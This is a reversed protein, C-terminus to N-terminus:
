VDTINSYGKPYALLWNVYDQCAEAISLKPTWNLYQKALKSSAVSKAVDGQRPKSIQKPIESGYAYEISSILQAVSTGLGSGLNLFNPLKHLNLLSKLTLLHAEAIDEIHIYDRVASGDPTDYNNGNIVIHPQENLIVRGVAAFINTAYSKPSEGFLGSPHAGIPNFYRLSVYKFSPNILHHYDITQEAILKTKGYMSSPGLISFEDYLGDNSAEYVTCSSSFIFNRIKLSQVLNIFAETGSVNVYWYQDPYIFSLPVSKLGAFHVAAQIESFGLDTIKTYCYLHDNIDAEIVHISSNFLTTGLYSRLQVLLQTFSNHFNDIIVVQFGAQILKLVVFSGIYGAGGSCLVVPRTLM